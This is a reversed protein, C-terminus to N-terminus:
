AAEKTDNHRFTWDYVEQLIDDDEADSARKAARRVEFRRVDVEGDFVDAAREATEVSKRWDSIQVRLKIALLEEIRILEKEPIDARDIHARLGRLPLEFLGEGYRRWSKGALQDLAKSVRIWHDTNPWRSM